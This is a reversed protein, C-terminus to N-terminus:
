KCRLCFKLFGLSRNFDNDKESTDRRINDACFLLLLVSIVSVQLGLLEGLSPFPKYGLTYVLQGM